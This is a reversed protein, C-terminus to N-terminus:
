YIKIGENSPPIVKYDAEIGKEKFIGVMDKGLEEARNQFAISVVAPGAGSLFCALAGKEPAIKIIEEMGPILASRYPQHLRDQCFINLDLFDGKSVAAVLLAARGINFVADEFDVTKPLVRRADETKLHFNPIGVVFRLECPICFSKYIVRPGCKLSLTFGGILAPVVNDPHGEMEAAMNLIKEFSLLDGALRNAAMMGGGICAASSGLGRAIPINNELTIKVPRDIGVEDFVRRAARYVLNTEDRSIEMEGEGSVIVETSSSFEMDIYNYLGMAAGICDFGPGFNATTAPVRVRVM